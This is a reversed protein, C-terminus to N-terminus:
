SNGENWAEELQQFLKDVVAIHDYIFDYKPDDVGTAEKLVEITELYEKIAGMLGVTQHLEYPELDLNIKM